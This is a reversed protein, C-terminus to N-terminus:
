SLNKISDKKEKETTHKGDEWSRGPDKEPDMLRSANVTTTKIGRQLLAV